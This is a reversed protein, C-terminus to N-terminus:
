KFFIFDIKKWEVIKKQALINEVFTLSVKSVSESPQPFSLFMDQRKAMFLYELILNIEKLCLEIDLLYVLIVKYHTM